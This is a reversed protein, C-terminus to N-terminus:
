PRAERKNTMLQLRVEDGRRDCYSRLWRKNSLRAVIKGCHPCRYLRKRKALTM